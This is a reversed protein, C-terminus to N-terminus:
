STKGKGKRNLYVQAIDYEKGSSDKSKTKDRIKNLNKRREDVQRMDALGSKQLQDLNFSAAAYAEEPNDRAAELMSKVKETSAQTQTDDSEFVNTVPDKNKSKLKNGSEKAMREATNIMEERSAINEGNRRKQEATLFIHQAELFSQDVFKNLDEQNTLTPSEPDSRAQELVKFATYHHAFLRSQHVLLQQEPEMAHRILLERRTDVLANEFQPNDAPKPHQTPKGDTELCEKEYACKQELWKKVEEKKDPFLEQMKAVEGARANQSVQEFQNKIDEPNVDAGCMEAFTKSQGTQKLIGTDKDPFGEILCDQGVVAQNTILREYYHELTEKRPDTSLRANIFNREDDVANSNQTIFTELLSPAQPPEKNDKKDNDDSSNIKNKAFQYGKKAEHYLARSVEYTLIGVAGAAKNGAWAASALIVDKMLYEIIDGQEIKFNDDDKKHGWDPDNIFGDFRGAKKTTEDQKKELLKTLREKDLDNLGSLYEDQKDEDLALFESDTMTPLSAQIPSVEKLDEVEKPLEDSGYGAKLDQDIQARSDAENEGIAATQAAYFKAIEYPSLEQSLHDKKYSGNEKPKIGRKEALLDRAAAYDKIQTDSPHFNKDNAARLIAASARLCRSTQERPALGRLAQIHPAYEASKPIAAIRKGVDDRIKSAVSNESPSKNAM